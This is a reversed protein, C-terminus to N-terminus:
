TTCCSAQKALFKVLQKTTLTEVSSALRLAVPVSLEGSVSAAPDLSQVSAAQDQAGSLSTRNELESMKRLWTISSKFKQQAFSNSRMSRTDCSAGRSWAHCSWQWEMRFRQGSITVKAIWAFATSALSVLSTKRHTNWTASMVFSAEKRLPIQGETSSTKTLTKLCIVIM